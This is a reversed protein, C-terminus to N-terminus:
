GLGLRKLFDLYRPDNRIGDMHEDNKIEMISPERLAYSRELWEFGKENEGALFLGSAVMYADFGAELHHLELEALLNSMKDRDREGAFVLADAGLKAFPLWKQNVRAWADAERRAEEHRGMQGYILALFFHVGENDPDLVAAIKALEFARGYDMKHYCVHILTTVAGVSLPDLQMAKEGQEFAEEWRLQTMLAWSYRSHALAYSPNLEIAKKFEGEAERPRYEYMLITGQTAHAEALDPALELAKALTAKAKALEADLDTGRAGRLWLICDAKGVYGLAFDSDDKIAQDFCEASSMVSEMERKNYLSRGKLYIAYATTSETPKKRIREMEESHIRVRLSNAIQKAIDSQVEFVDKLERDYSQAWVHRDGAVDILQTTVRIKNGAKKFTGELISGVELEKGIEKVKKATGKYGIVSTRSIVNLGSIGSVASIIEDTIGDAFFADDPDPSFSAFPLIAIRSPSFTVPEATSYQEWPMDIKFVEIPDNVNKLAKLGISSLRLEFKKSVHDYVQRTLFVGGDDALPEIRSAVNVADGSIDGQTEIIDGLHLGVRLHIKDELPLSINFERVARQIDYACRVADLANAFEVLFADGITKVERGGHRVLIPRILRRQEDVLALSLSENRQGLATYGVMDTFMIAALRREGDPM